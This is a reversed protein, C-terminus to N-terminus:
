VRYKSKSINKNEDIVTSSPFIQFPQFLSYSKQEVKLYVVHLGRLQVSSVPHLENNRLSTIGFVCIKYVQLNTLGFILYPENIRVNTANNPDPKNNRLSM